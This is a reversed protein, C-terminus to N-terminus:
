LFWGVPLAAIRRSIAEPEDGDYLLVGFAARKPYEDLFTEVHRTDSSRARRSGKVEVPLLKGGREIVFDVEEGLSTRWYFVETALGGAEMSAHASALVANELIAGELGSSTLDRKDRIGALHAALGSDWGYLKPSKVLRKSRRVSFPRLRHIQYSVELLNLYRHATPQTLGADSGLSTQNLVQGTRLAAHEMLRRFDALSSINSLDRLDRELYTRLYGEFWSRRERMTRALVAPPMGGQLAAKRWDPKKALPQVRRLLDSASRAGLVQKWPPFGEKGLREALTMPRLTLYVARGALSDAVEKMLLLNASGTLLFRGRRRRRDVDRKVALLLDPARQVEDLTLNQGQALLDEPRRRAMELIELDDLTRFTRGKSSASRRVLTTKGTQRAGTVVVVPHDRLAHQLTSELLRPLYKTRNMAHIIYM